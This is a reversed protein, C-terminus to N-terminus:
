RGIAGLGRGVLASKRPVFRPDRRVDVASPMARIANSLGREKLSALAKAILDHDDM